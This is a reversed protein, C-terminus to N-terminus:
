ILKDIKNTIKKSSPKTMSSWSDVLLGDRDFLFKYFNWKPKKSYEKNIWKYIPHADEGKVSMPSSTIFSVGYNALCIKKIEETSSYEQNFSNSTTAIITLDTKRYETFLKQLGEYQPTFGCRSATNILLLPKGKFVSLDISNGDIDILSHDYITTNNASMTNNSFLILVALILIKKVKKM